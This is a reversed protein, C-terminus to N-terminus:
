VKVLLRELARFRDSQQYRATQAPQSARLDPCMQLLTQLAFKAELRGLLAGLCYHSGAGFALHDKPNRSLIFLEPDQYHKPDRNAAGLCLRVQANAPISVGGIATEQLTNRLVMQEPSDFRLVEEIFQPLLNLDSQVDYRVAHHHLLVFVSNSILMSTTTTGGIWLLKLVSVLEQDNLDKGGPSGTLQQLFHDSPKSKSKAIYDAFFEELNADTENHKRGIQDRLAELEAESFGLIRGMVLQALPTAFGSIIDFEARAIVKTLLNKACDEIYVVMESLGRASFHSSLAQRISTHDPLDKALLVGDEDSRAQSSFIEPQRLASSVDDYDLVFWCGHQELSHVPGKQRLAEYYPYPDQIFDPASLSLVSQVRETATSEFGANKLTLSTREDSEERALGLENLNALTRAFTINESEFPHVSDLILIDKNIKAAAAQFQRRVTKNAGGMLIVNYGDALSQNLAEAAQLPKAAQWYWFSSDLSVGAPYQSGGFSSYFDYKPSASTIGSLELMSPRPEREIVPTHAASTLEAISTNIGNQAFFSRATPLDEKFCTVITETPYTATLFIKVPCSRAIDPIWDSELRIGAYKDLASYSQPWQAYFRAVTFIDELSLSRNIHCSTLIGFSIGLTGHPEIGKSQWLEALSLHIIAQLLVYSEPGFGVSAEEFYGVLSGKEGILRLCHQVTERFQPESKYLGRGVGDWFGHIGAFVLLLRPEQKMRSRFGTVQVKTQVRLKARSYLPRARDLIRGIVKSRLM